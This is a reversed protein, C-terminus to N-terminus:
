ESEAVFTKLKDKLRQIEHEKEALQQKLEKIVESESVNATINQLLTTADPRDKANKAVLQNIITALKPHKKLIQPSLHGQRLESIIHIREMDTNFVSVLELLIIGLSYM